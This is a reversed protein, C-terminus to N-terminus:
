NNKNKNGLKVELGISSIIPEYSPSDTLPLSVGIQFVAKLSRCGAKFTFAPEYYTCSKTSAMEKINAAVIRNSIGCEFNRSVYGINSQIFLRTNHVNARSSFLDTKDKSELSGCGIGGYVEYYFNPSGMESFYGVGIEAFQHKEYTDSTDNTTAFSGNLMLAIHSSVAYAFQPDIGSSGTSIGGKFEGKSTLLPANIKNPIYSPACSSLASVILICPWVAKLNM